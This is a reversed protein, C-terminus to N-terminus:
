GPRPRLIRFVVLVVEFAFSGRSGSCIDQYILQRVAPAPPVFCVQDHLKLEQQTKPKLKIGQCLLFATSQTMDTPPKKM